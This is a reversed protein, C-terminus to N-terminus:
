DDDDTEHGIKHRYTRNQEKETVKANEKYKNEKSTVDVFM